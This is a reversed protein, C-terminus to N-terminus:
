GSISVDHKLSEGGEICEELWLYKLSQTSTKGGVFAGWMEAMQLVRRRQENSLKGVDIDTQSPVLESDDQNSSLDFRGQSAARAMTPAQEDRSNEKAMKSEDMRLKVGFDRGRKLRGELRARFFDLLSEDSGISESKENSYVFADSIISWMLTSTARAEDDNVMRGDEDFIVQRDGWTHLKAGRAKALSLIPNNETGHIWNPGVDVLSGHGLPVQHIQCVTDSIPIQPDSYERM